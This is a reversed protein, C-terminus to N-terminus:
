DMLTELAQRALQVGAIEAASILMAM